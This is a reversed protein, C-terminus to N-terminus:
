VMGVVKFPKVRYHTSAVIDKSKCIMQVYFSPWSVSM